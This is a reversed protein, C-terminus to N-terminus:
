RGRGHAHQHDLVLDGQGVGDRAPQAALPHRDVRRVVAVAAQLLGHDGAVVDEHEVAVQGPAGAVVDAAAQGALARERPHEHEGGGAGQLVADRPELEAGVVVEALREGEGLQDRAHAGEAAAGRRGRRRHQVARAPEDDVRRPPRRGPVADVEAQGALLEAHELLQQAGLARDHGLSSSSSRTQSSNASGNVVVTRTVTM